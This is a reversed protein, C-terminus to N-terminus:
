KRAGTGTETFVAPNAVGAAAANITVTEPSSPLTYLQSATGNTATVVPNPNSFTGGAGGDSFTVSNGSVPNGYQDTVLVTLAQPLETGALASQNNGSTIAVTAAPGAVSYEPYNVNNLGASSGTVTVTAVTTPLQVSTSAYGNTGTVVSSPNAVAGKKTTFNVTVNPVGNKHADLAQVIIPNPLISGAAGTQKAGRYAYLKVAPASAATATATSYGFGSGSITLTYTGAVLPVTYITSANGNADTVASAPNFSGCTTSGPKKCGDSFTVTAGVVFQGTYPNSAQVQLPAALPTGITATQGNGATVGAVNLLGYAVLSNTSAVYVKGNIVTQTVFHGVPPLADRNNPAQASTYLLELSVADFVTLQPHVASGPATIVWLVGNTNGNASVSPSHSGHYGPSPLPNGLVGGSVLYATPTADNPAFYVMNNWYAPSAYLVVDDDGSQEGPILPFEQLAGADGASYMGLDDRDLVYVFGQKGGAVLEHINPGSQDPLIMVGTSSLDLDNQNLFAVIWPTFYDLVELNPSLKIVSNCYTQGGEPVDYDNVGSEATEVFINGAEDAAIGNGTQWISVLGHDPSTNFAAVQTLSSENYALLWGQDLDNCSNSGFGMYIIGNLLLLGPRNKEYKSNFVTVHGKNSVSQAAIPVPSGPLDSGTTIDLAHLNLQVVGNVATKAVLYMTNTTTDIVPTGPIGEQNFGISAGCPLTDNAIQATYIGQAPNTFNVWWLQAGSDADIAYVSDAQTVVFVVNHTGQGPINLNPMYLPQAQVVYDIPTSFLHGFTNLNVNAPTLLTENTNAGDRANDGRSTPFPLQAFSSSLFALCVVLLTLLPRSCAWAAGAPTAAFRSHTM